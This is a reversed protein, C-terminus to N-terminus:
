HKGVARRLRRTGAWVAGLIIPLSVLAAIEADVPVGAAKLGKAAYGVLGILYYSIAVVSLGEVTEQLRLQLEARRNMSALLDRNKEELAIDVRTRLLDGTRVVRTALATQREATWQATAMAPALRRDMFEAITQTGAIREERLEEVRRRVIDWYARAASFRYASAATLAESEAALRMLEELLARDDGGAPAAMREVVGGLGAEIRSIGVAAQGAVPFALLAMMRYTEIELLRQVLRGAQGLTLGQDRVLVRGFGDGHIRCDTWARAAGGMVQSGIVQNGDFLSSLAAAPREVTEIALHLGVLLEGPLGSLWDPPALDLATAAFPEDFPEFRFLTYTSFETHREWRLRFPGSELSFYNAGAPPPAVGFRACLADLALRDADRLAEGTVLALHSARVPATLLEYPRAHVEAALRERLPHSPPLSVATIAPSAM